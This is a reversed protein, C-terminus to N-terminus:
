DMAARTLRLLLEGYTVGSRNTDNGQKSEESLGLTARAVVM